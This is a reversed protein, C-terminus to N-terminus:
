VFFFVTELDDVSASYLASALAAVSSEHTLFKSPSFNLAGWRKVTVVGSSSIYTCIRNVMRVHFVDSQVIVKHPFLDIGPLEFNKM